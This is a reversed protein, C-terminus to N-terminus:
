GASAEGILRRDRQHVVGAVVVRREVLRQLQGVVGIEGAALRAEFALALEAADAEGAVDLGAADRGRGRDAREAGAHTEVLAALTRTLGVPETVTNVPVWLWPWPWSVVKAWITASFSPTGM